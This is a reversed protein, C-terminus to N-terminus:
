FFLRFRKTKFVGTLSYVNHRLKHKLKGLERLVIIELGCDVLSSCRHRNYTRKINDEISLIKVTAIWCKVCHGIV